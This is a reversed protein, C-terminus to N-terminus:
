NKFEVNYRLSKNNIFDLNVENADLAYAVDVFTNLM